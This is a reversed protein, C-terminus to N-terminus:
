SLTSMQEANAANFFPTLFSMVIYSTRIAPLLYIHDETLFINIHDESKCGLGFAIPMNLLLYNLLRGWSWFFAHLSTELIDTNFVHENTFFFHTFIYFLIIIKNFAANHQFHKSLNSLFIWWFIYVLILISTKISIIM